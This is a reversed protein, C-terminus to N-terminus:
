SKSGGSLFTVSVKLVPWVLPHTVRQEVFKEVGSRQEVARAKPSMELVDTEMSTFAEKGGKFTRPYFVGGKHRLLEKPWSSTRQWTKEKAPTTV